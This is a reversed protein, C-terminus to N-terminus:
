QELKKKREKKEEKKKEEKMAGHRIKFILKTTLTKQRIERNKSRARNIARSRPTPFHGPFKKQLPQLPLGQFSLYSLLTMGM